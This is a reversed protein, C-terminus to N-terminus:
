ANTDNKYDNTFREFLAKANTGSQSQLNSKRRTKNIDIQSLIDPPKVM